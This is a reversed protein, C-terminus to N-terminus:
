NVSFSAKLLKMRRTVVENGVFFSASFCIMSCALSHISWLSREFDGFHDQEARVLVMRMVWVFLLLSTAKDKLRFRYAASNQQTIRGVSTFLM